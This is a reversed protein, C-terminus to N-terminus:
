SVSDAFAVASAKAEADTKIPGAKAQLEKHKEEQERNLEDWTKDTRSWDMPVHIFPKDGKGFGAYARHSWGYWKGDKKSKGISCVSHSPDSKEPEVQLKYRFDKPNNRWDKEELPVFLEALGEERRKFVGGLKSLLGPKKGFTVTAKGTDVKVEGSSTPTRPAPLRVKKKGVTTVTPAAKKKKEKPKKSASKEHKKKGKTQFLKGQGGKTGYAVYTYEPKEEPWEEPRNPDDLDPQTRQKELWAKGATNRLPKDLIKRAISRLKPSIVSKWTKPEVDKDNDIVFMNTKGFLKVYRQFNRRAGRWADEIYSKPVDRGGRKAREENRRMATELSTHVYVMSCDYGLKQLKKFPRAIREYDWGTSDIIIGMRRQAYHRIEKGKMKQAKKLLDYRQGVQSLPLKADAMFRELHKDQDIVKLGVGAFMADSVAGKGAGGSGALFIAKLIHPDYISEDLDSLSVTDSERRAFLTALSM